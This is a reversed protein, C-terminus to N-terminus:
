GGPRGGGQAAGQAGQAREGRLTGPGAFGDRAIRLLRRAGKAGGGAIAAANALALVDDVTLNGDAAGADQARALLERATSRMSTHWREFLETRRAADNETAAFALSRKTAVHTVFDDLWSYLAQDASASELLATGRACLATVEDAYVAVILDCRTPFHRYLTANGVGARRAVDDLAVETGHEGFLDKAAALLAAANRASDTRRPRGATAPKGPHAM